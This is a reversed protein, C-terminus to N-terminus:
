PKLIVATLEDTHRARAPPTSFRADARLDEREIIEVLAEFPEANDPPLMLYVYDNPGAGACRVLDAYAGSASRNGM